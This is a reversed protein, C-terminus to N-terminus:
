HHKPHRTHDKYAKRMASRRRELISTADRIEDIPILPSGCIPCLDNAKMWLGYICKDSSCHGIAMTGPPLCAVDEAPFLEETLWDDDSRM